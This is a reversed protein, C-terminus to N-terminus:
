KGTDHIHVPKNGTFSFITVHGIYQKPLDIIKGNNM